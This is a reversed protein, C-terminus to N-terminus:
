SVNVCVCMCVYWEIVSKGLLLQAAIFANELLAYSCSLSLPINQSKGEKWKKKKKKGGVILEVDNQKAKTHWNCAYALKRLKVENGNMIYPM